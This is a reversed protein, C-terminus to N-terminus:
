RMERKIAEDHPAVQFYLTECEILLLLRRTIMDWLTFMFVLYIVRSERLVDKLSANKFLDLVPYRYAM